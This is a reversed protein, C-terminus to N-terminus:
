IDPRHWLASDATSLCLFYPFQRLGVLYIQFIRVDEICKSWCLNFYACQTLSKGDPTKRLRMAHFVSLCLAIELNVRFIGKLYATAALVKRLNGAHIVRIDEGIIPIHGIPGFERKPHKSEKILYSLLTIHRIIM